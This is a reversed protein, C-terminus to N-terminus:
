PVKNCTPAREACVCQGDRDAAVGITGLLAERQLPFQAAELQRVWHLARDAAANFVGPALTSRIDFAWSLDGLNTKGILRVALFGLSRISRRQRLAQTIAFAIGPMAQWATINDDRAAIENALTLAERFAAPTKLHV